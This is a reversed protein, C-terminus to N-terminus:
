SGIDTTAPQVAAEGAQSVHVENVKPHNHRTSSGLKSKRESEELVIENMQQFRDEDQVGPNQLLRM